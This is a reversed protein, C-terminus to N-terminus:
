FMNCPKQVSVNKLFVMQCKVLLGICHFIIIRSFIYHLETHQITSLLLKVNVDGESFLRKTSSLFLALYTSM